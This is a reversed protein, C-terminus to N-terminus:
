EDGGTVAGLAESQLSQYVWYYGRHTKGKKNRDQVQIPTEDAQIYGSALVEETLARYLPEVLDASAKTWDGLTSTALACGQRTFRQVQRYLPLHDVYKEIVVHALLSPEAIGREVARAPLAGIIVGRDEDLPDVYKPRVRRIVKLKGPLYDLTETIEEGIKKLGTTDVDPEIVIVERPLHAPLARRM